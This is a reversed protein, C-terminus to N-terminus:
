VNFSKVYGVQCVWQQVDAAAENARRVVRGPTLQSYTWVASCFIKDLGRRALAVFEEVWATIRWWEPCHRARAVGLHHLGLALCSLRSIYSSAKADQLLADDWSSALLVGGSLIM